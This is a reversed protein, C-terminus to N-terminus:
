ASRLKEIMGALFQECDRGSNEKDFHHRTVDEMMELLRTRLEGPGFFCCYRSSRFEILISRDHQVQVILTLGDIISHYRHTGETDFVDHEVLFSSFDIPHFEIFPRGENVPLDVRCVVQEALQFIGRFIDSQAVGSLSCGRPVLERM